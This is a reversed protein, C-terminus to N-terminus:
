KTKKRKLPPVELGTENDEDDPHPQTIKLHGLRGISTLVDSCPIEFSLKPFATPLNPSVEHETSVSKLQSMLALVKDLADRAPLKKWARYQKVAEKAKVSESEVKRYYNACYFLRLKLCHGFCWVCDVSSVM